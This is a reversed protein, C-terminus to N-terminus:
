GGFTTGKGAVTHGTFSPVTNPGPVPASYYRLENSPGQDAIDLEGAPHGARVVLVPASYANDIVTVVDNQWSRGAVNFYSLVLGHDAGEYSVALETAPTGLVLSPASYDWNASERGGSHWSSDYQYELLSHKAGEVM